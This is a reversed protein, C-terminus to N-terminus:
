TGLDKLLDDLESDGTSLPNAAPQPAPVPAPQAAVQTVVPQPQAVPASPATVPATPAAVPAPTPAVAAPAPAVTSPAPLSPVDRVSQTAGAPAPLGSIAAVAGLARQKSQISAVENAIFTDINHLRELIKPDIPKGPVANVAYVTDKGTGSREIIVDNGAVPDLLNPWDTFLSIIGGVGKKGNFASPALELIQPENPTAGDLHLVNILVRGNSRADELRKKLDDTTSTRIAEGVSECIACPRGFTKDECIYVAKVEGASNKVFHQGFDHFFTPDGNKRWGPLIRYRNRGPNPKITKIRSTAAKREALLKLLAETSM